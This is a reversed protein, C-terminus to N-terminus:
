VTGSIFLKFTSLTGKECAKESILWALIAKINFM